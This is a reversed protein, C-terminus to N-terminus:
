KIMVVKAYKKITNGSQGTVNLRILYIGAKNLSGNWVKVFEGKPLTGSFVTAILRGYLDYIVIEVQAQEFLKYQINTSQTFPNPYVNLIGDELSYVHLEDPIVKVPNGKLDGAVLNGWHLEDTEGTIGIINQLGLPLPKNSYSYLIGLLKGNSVCSVLEYGPLKTLLQVNEIGIGELEFQLGAVPQTTKFLITRDELYIYAPPNDAAIDKKKGNIINVLGIVDLINITNDNNVDAANFIFPQPNQNLMYAIITTIDLVNVALDGNADGVASTLPTCSVVSSSDSEKLDTNVVKYYYYYLVNPTVSFDTILTDLVLSTNIRVPTTFTTDTVHQFRYMNFGLLDPIGANNWELEVKGLGPTAQFDMSASGAAQILFEFRMDEIPIEWGDLDKAGAVRIRNIGDGTYLQVTKYCTYIKHDASWHGSDAVSTQTYPSRVGFSVQPTVSANMPKNFYVDFKQPGLGVPDPVEDQADKSNVLVKWVVGHASDSPLTRIPSYNFMPLSPDKWFDYNMSKIKDLNTTGWYNNSLSIIDNSGESKFFYEYKGVGIFNNVAQSFASKKFFHTYWYTAGSYQYEYNLIKVFNNHSQSPEMSYAPYGAIGVKFQLCNEINNRGFHNNITNYVLYGFVSNKINNNEVKMKWAGFIYGSIYNTSRINLNEFICNTFTLSDGEFSGTMGSFFTYKFYMKGVFNSSRISGTGTIHILSDPEGNGYIKGKNEMSTNLNVFTGPNIILIGNQGVRFSSNILWLKDATLILTTDMVGSLEEGNEVTLILNQTVTDNSGKNWTKLVFNIDRGNIVNQSIHIKLPNSQNTQTAYASISGLFAQNILIQATSTDEFEAFRIATFVSDALGGTNRVKFWLQITEGADVRGDHDDGSLTDVVTNSIFWLQIGPVITLTNNVNLYTSTSQIFKVFMLEQSELPRLKRFMAACGSIVPAAMSTGQFVRYNGNPITSLINTGPAKMEYNWLDPYNSFVPGDQDFNSWSANTQTGLVFSFAAPFMPLCFNGPGICIGDNGSAAVLVCTAYASALAQEMTLSRAYSGFSMNLITAGNNKAYTIGQAITGADGYGSSQFVKLPMIKAGQSIGSIGVNNNSQAGAIGAVHTGHSNDDAPNNDNNIWDWGRVDDIKGNGDDDIGNGPIEDTNRWIKNTLDPHLWDVGTDLIGIIQTSDSGNVSDWVENAHVAPIYWQQSYLPDNPTSNSSPPSAVPLFSNNMWAAAETETLPPSIAKDNTISLIYNPEAFVVNADKSLSDIAAFLQMPDEVKLRYINHLSPKEFEQGNYGRLMVKSKLPTEQPFLKEAANVKYLMFLKDVSTIGTQTLSSKLSLNLAVGDKFKILIEGQVFNMSSGRPDIRVVSDKPLNVFLQNQGSIGLSFASLCIFFFLEKM